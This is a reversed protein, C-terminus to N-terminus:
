KVVVKMAHDILERGTHGALAASLLATLRRDTSATMDGGVVPLVFDLRASDDPLLANEQEMNEEM